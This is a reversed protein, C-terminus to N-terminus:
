LKAMPKLQLERLKMALGLNGQLKLKQQFFATQPNMKGTMLQVLDSDKMTVTCDAKETSGFKVSGKGNKVDVVWVGDKGGPGDKVKFCFVGKIKKTYKEGEKELIAKIDNFYAAVKFDSNNEDGQTM